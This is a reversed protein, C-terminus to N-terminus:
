SIKKKRNELHNTEYCKKLKKWCVLKNATYQSGLKLEKKLHERETKIM